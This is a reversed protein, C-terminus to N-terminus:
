KEFGFPNALLLTQSVNTYITINATEETIYKETTCYGMEPRPRRM